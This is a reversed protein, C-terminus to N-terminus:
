RQARRSAGRQRGPRKSPKTSGATSTKADHAALDDRIVQLRPVGQRHAAAAIAHAAVPTANVLFLALTVVKWTTGPMLFATAALLGIIGLTAVKGSAHIRSYVDPLRVIGVVGVISFFVGFALFVLGVIERPPM